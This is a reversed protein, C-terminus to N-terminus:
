NKYRGQHAPAGPVALLLRHHPLGGAAPLFVVDVEALEGPCLVPDDLRRPVLSVAARPAAQLGGAGQPAEAIPLAGTGHCLAGWEGHHVEDLPAVAGLNFCALKGVHDNLLAAANCVAHRQHSVHTALRSGTARM